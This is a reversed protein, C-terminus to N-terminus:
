MGAGCSIFTTIVDETATPPQLLIRAEEPCELGFPGLLLDKSFPSASSSDGIAWLYSQGVKLRSM